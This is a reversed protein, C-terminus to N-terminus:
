KKISNLLLKPAFKPNFFINTALDCEHSCFCKTAKIMKKIEKAKASLWLKKLDYNYDRLNGFTLEPKEIMYNECSYVDGTENIVGRIMGSYCPMIYKNETILKFFLKYQLNQKAYFYNKMPFNFTRNKKFDDHIKETMRRYINIDVNKVKPYKVKGRVMNFTFNDVKLKKTAYEYILDIDEQNDANLTTIISLGFNKFKQKLQFLRFYSQEFKQFSNKKKVFIDRKKGLQDLSLSINVYANKCKELISCTTSEILKPFSGNSPITIHLVKTYDYFAKCIDPLDKRLFPEGGSILLRLLKPSKKAILRIENLTLENQKKGKIKNIYFCHKCRFNCRSTVFLTLEVPYKKFFITKGFKLYNKTKM